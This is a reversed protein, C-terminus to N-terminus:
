RADLVEGECHGDGVIYVRVRSGVSAGACPTGKPPGLVCVAGDDFKAYQWGEGASVVTADGVSRRFPRGCAPCHTNGRKRLPAKCASCQMRETL